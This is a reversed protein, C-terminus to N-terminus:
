KYFASETIELNIHKPNVGYKDAIASLTEVINKNMCQIVSLNVEM